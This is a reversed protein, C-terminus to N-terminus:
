PATFTVTPNSGTVWDSKASSEWRWEYKGAHLGTWTAADGMKNVKVSSSPTTMQVPTGTGDAGRSWLTFTTNKAVNNTINVTYLLEAGVSVRVWPTGAVSTTQQVPSAAISAWSIAQTGLTTYPKVQYYQSTNWNQSITASTVTATAVPTTSNGAAFVLYGGITIGPLTDPPDWSLVVQASAPSPWSGKLNKAPNPPGNPDLWVVTADASATNPTPTAADVATVTYVYNENAVCGTAATDTFGTATKAVNSALTTTVGNLTRKIVYHDVDRSVSGTWNLMVVALDKQAAATFNTVAAPPGSEIRKTFEWTNGPYATATYAVARFTYVGDAVGTGGPAMWNTSYTTPSGASYPVTVVPYAAGSAPTITFKVGGTITSAGITVPTMSPVDASNVIASLQVTASTILDKDVADLPAASFQVIQPGVYQRYVMTSVVVPKYPTPNGAWTVTITVKKYAARTDTGSVDVTQVDYDVRLTRNGSATQETWTPGFSSFYFSPNYLNPTTGPNASDAVIQDWDLQRIKEIRDQAANAAVVRMRDGSSADLANVMVPVLAAFFIAALTISVLLEAMTFGAESRKARWSQRTM